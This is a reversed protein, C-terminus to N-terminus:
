GGAARQLPSSSAREVPCLKRIRGVGYQGCHQNIHYHAKEPMNEEGDCADILKSYNGPETLLKATEGRRVEQGHQHQCSKQIKCESFYGSHEHNVKTNDVVTHEQQSAMKQDKVDLVLDVTNAVNRYQDCSGGLGSYM